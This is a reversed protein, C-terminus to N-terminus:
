SPGGERGIRAAREIAQIAERGTVSRSSDSLVGCDVLASPSVPDHALCGTLRKGRAVLVALKRLHLALEPRTVHADAGVVHTERSVTLFGLAIARIVAPRDPRDVVDVAVDASAPVPSDRIEPVSAFLLSAFQARTLRTSLAARRATEPLNQIKFELRAQLAKAKYAPNKAALEDFWATAEALRGTKTALAAAFETFSADEPALNRAQVAWVYADELKESALAARSLIQFGAAMTPETEILSVGARRAAELDGSKLAEAAEKQRTALLEAGVKEERLAARKDLPILRLLARYGRLAQPLRGQVYFLDARAEAAPPYAPLSALLRELGKGAEEWRGTALQVYVGGLEFPAPTAAKVRGKRFSEEARALDKAALAELGTDLLRMESRTLADPGFGLKLDRFAFPSEPPSSPQGPVPGPSACGGSFVLWSFVLAALLGARWNRAPTM